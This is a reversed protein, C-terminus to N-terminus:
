NWAPVKREELRKNHVEQRDVRTSIPATVLLKVKNQGVAIVRIEIEGAGIVIAEGTTRTLVLRGHTKV